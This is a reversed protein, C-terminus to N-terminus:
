EPSNPVCIPEPIHRFAYWVLGMVHRIAHLWSGLYASMLRAYEIGSYTDVSVSASDWPVHWIPVYVKQDVVPGLWSQDSGRFGAPVRFLCFCTGFCCKCWIMLVRISFMHARHQFAHLYVYLMGSGCSLYFANGFVDSICRIEWRRM